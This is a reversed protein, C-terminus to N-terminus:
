LVERSLTPAVEIIGLDVGVVNGNGYKCRVNVRVRNPLGFTEEQTLPVLFLSEEEDYKIEDCALTKRIANGICVEVDLFSEATAVGRDTDIKIPLSYSDGKMMPM